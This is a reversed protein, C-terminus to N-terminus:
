RSKEGTGKNDLGGAQANELLQDVEAMSPSVFPYFSGMLLAALLSIVIGRV